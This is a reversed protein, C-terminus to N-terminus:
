SRPALAGLVPNLVHDDLVSLLPTIWCQDVQELDKVHGVTVIGVATSTMGQAMNLLPSVLFWNSKSAVTLAGKVNGYVSRAVNQPVTDKKWSSTTPTTAMPVFPLKKTASKYSRSSRLVGAGPIDTSVTPFKKCPKTGLIRPSIVTSEDHNSSSKPLSLAYAAAVAQQATPSPRRPSLPTEDEEMTMCTTVLLQIEEEEEEQDQEHEDYTSSATPPTSSAACTTEDKTPSSFSFRNGCSSESENTTDSGTPSFSLAALLAQVGDLDVGEQSNSIDDNSLPKKSLAAVVSPRVSGNSEAFVDELCLTQLRDKADTDSGSAVLLLGTMTTEDQRREDSWCCYHRRPAIKPNKEMRRADIKIILLPLAKL